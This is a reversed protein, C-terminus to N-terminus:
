KNLFMESQVLEAVLTRVGYGGTRSRALIAELEPRDGFHAPAGTAFVLLQQLLNRALQEESTLLHRKLDRVDKFARGDPLAGSADVPQAIKFTFRQSNHGIGAVPEGEGLSRYRTRWAGFVDFNELAIGPSIPLACTQVGTM